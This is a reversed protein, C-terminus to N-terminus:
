NKQKVSFFIRSKKKPEIRGGINEIFPKSASLIRIIKDPGTKEPKGTSFHGFILKKNQGSHDSSVVFSYFIPQNFFNPHVFYLLIFHFSQHASVTLITATCTHCHTHLLTHACTHSHTHCDSYAPLHTHTPHNYKHRHKFSLHKHGPRM